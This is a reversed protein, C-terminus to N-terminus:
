RGDKIKKELKEKLLAIEQALTKNQFQLKSVTLSLHLLYVLIAFIAGAFLLNPPAIVGVAHALLELANRWFSLVILVFTSLIWIFAYEERLKGSKIQWMVNALFILSVVICIAQIREM